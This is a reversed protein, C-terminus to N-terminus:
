FFFISSPLFPLFNRDKRGEEMIKKKKKFSKIPSSFSKDRSEELIKKKNFLSIYIRKILFFFPPLFSLPFNGEKRGEEM